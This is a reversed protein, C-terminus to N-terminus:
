CFRSHCRPLATLIPQFFMLFRSHLPRIADGTGRPPRSDEDRDDSEGITQHESRSNSKCLRNRGASPNSIKAEGFILLWCFPSGCESSVGRFFGHALRPRVRLASVDRQESMRGSLVKGMVKKVARAQRSDEDWDDSEGIAQIGANALIVLQYTTCSPATRQNGAVEPNEPDWRAAGDLL